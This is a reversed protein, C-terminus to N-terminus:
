LIISLGNKENYLKINEITNSVFRFTTKKLQKSKGERVTKYNFFFKARMKISKNSQFISIILIIIMKYKNAKRNQKNNQKRIM